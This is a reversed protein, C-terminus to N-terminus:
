ACLVRFSVVQFIMQSVPKDGETQVQFAITNDKQATFSYERCKVIAQSTLVPNGDGLFNTTTFMEPPKVVVKGNIKIDCHQDQYIPLLYYFLYCIEMTVEKGVVSGPLKFGGQLIQATPITINPDGSERFYTWKDGFKWRYTPETSETSLTQDNFLADRYLDIGVDVTACNSTVEGCANSVVVYYEHKGEELDSGKLTLKRSTGDLVVDSGCANKYWQYQLDNQGSACVELCLEGNHCLFGGVPQELIQPANGSECPPCPSSDNVKVTANASREQGCDNKVVVHFTSMGQQMTNVQYTRQQANPIAIGNKYWQYRLPNQGSACVELTLSENLCV